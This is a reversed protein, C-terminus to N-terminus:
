RFENCCRFKGLVCFLVNDEEMEYELVKGAYGDTFILTVAVWEWNVEGVAVSVSTFLM